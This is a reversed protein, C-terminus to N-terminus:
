QVRSAYRPDVRSFLLPNFIRAMTEIGDVVRPGPRSTLSDGDMAWVQRGALWSWGDTALLDRAVVTARELSYGCPAVLVFDPNADVLREMGVAVSHGGTVGVVDVGGARHIQEPVWHGGPFIPEVWEVLAVRPRPARTAKLKSHVRRMRAKLGSVIEEAESAADVVRAVALVEDIIGDITSAALTLVTPSASMMAALAVVDRESIACVDCLNQTIIVDPALERIRAWNVGVSMTKENLVPVRELADIEGPYNCAHSVGVIKDVVGLAALIETAAPLLSVVRTLANTNRRLGGQRWDM